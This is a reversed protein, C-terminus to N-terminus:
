HKAEPLKEGSLEEYVEELIKTFIPNAGSKEKANSRYSKIWDLSAKNNLVESINTRFYNPNRDMRGLTYETILIFMHGGIYTELREKRM